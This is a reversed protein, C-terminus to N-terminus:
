PEAKREEGYYQRYGYTHYSPIIEHHANFVIGLIANPRLLSMARIVTERPAHRSRVVFVFGDVHDQLVIADAVPVLPPCDVVVYSFDRRAAELLSAMRTSGLVDPDGLTGEGASLAWCGKNESLSRIVLPGKAGELHQRVGIAPPALGLTQDLSPRRLDAELLLVRERGNAALSNAIGISVTTKGEGPAASVVGLTRIQRERSLARLRVGVLRFQEAAGSNGALFRSLVLRVRSRSSHDEKFTPLPDSV